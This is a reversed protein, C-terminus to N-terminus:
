RSAGPRDSSRSRGSGIIRRRFSHTPGHGGSCGSRLCLTRRCTRGAAAVLSTLAAKRPADSYQTRRPLADPCAVNVEQDCHLRRLSLVKDRAACMTMYAGVEQRLAKEAM